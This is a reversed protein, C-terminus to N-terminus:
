VGQKMPVGRRITGWGILRFNNDVMRSIAVQEGLSCCVPTVLELKAIDPNITINLVTAGATLTGVNIQLSEQLNLKQVRKISTKGDKSAKTGVMENFLYFQVELEAYVDPLSNEEGIMHGVMKDQRTLTPDLTTGVAILGGPIAYQLVNNEAKLSVTRTRLPNYSFRGQETYSRSKILGPRIELVQGLRIVGQTVTGGAVGGKLNEIDGEGPKNIDFSRVITMRAPCRLQRTPLPVHVLYELLFNVNRKLQASIPVIPANLAINDLYARIQRYQDHAHVEGVLDIKNQLVILHRLKM